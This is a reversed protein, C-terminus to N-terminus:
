YLQKFNFFNDSPWKNTILSYILINYLIWLVPFAININYFGNEIFLFLRTIM